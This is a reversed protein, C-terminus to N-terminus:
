GFSGFKTCSHVTEARFACRSIAGMPMFLAIWFPEAFANSGRTRSFFAGLSV